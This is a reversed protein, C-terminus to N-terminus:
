KIKKRISGWPTSHTIKKTTTVSSFSMRWYRVPLAKPLRFIRGLILGLLVMAPNKPPRSSEGISLIAIPLKSSRGIDSRLKPSM